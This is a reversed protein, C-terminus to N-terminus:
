VAEPEVRNAELYADLDAQRIRVHRGLKHVPIRKEFVLRKVFRESVNLYDAAEVKTLLPSETLSGKSAATANGM